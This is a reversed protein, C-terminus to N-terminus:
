CCGCIIVRGTLNCALRDVYGQLLWEGTSDARCGFLLPGFSMRCRRIGSSAARDENPM